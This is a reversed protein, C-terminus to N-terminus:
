FYDYVDDFATEIVGASTKALDIERVNGNGLTYFARFPVPPIEDRGDNDLWAEYVRDDHDRADAIDRAQWENEAVITFMARYVRSRCQFLRLTTM